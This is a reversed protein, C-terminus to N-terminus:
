LTSISIIEIENQTNGSADLKIIYFDLGGTGIYGGDSTQQISYAFDKDSGGYTKQWNVTQSLLYNPILSFLPMFYCLCLLLYKIGKYRKAM